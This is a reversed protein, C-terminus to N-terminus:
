IVESKSASSQSQALRIHTKPMELMEWNHTTEHMGRSHISLNSKTLESRSYLFKLHLTEEKIYM